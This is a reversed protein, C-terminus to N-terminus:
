IWQVHLGAAFIPCVGLSWSVIRGLLNPNSLFFIFHSSFCFLSVTFHICFSICWSKHHPDCTNMLDDNASLCWGQYRRWKIRAM